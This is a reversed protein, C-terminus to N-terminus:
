PGGLIAQLERRGRSLARLSFCFRLRNTLGRSSGLKVRQTGRSRWNGILALKWLPQPLTGAQQIRRAGPGAGLEV